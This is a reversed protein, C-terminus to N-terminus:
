ESIIKKVSFMKAYNDSIALAFKGPSTINAHEAIKIDNPDRGGPTSILM